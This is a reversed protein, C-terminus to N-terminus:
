RDRLPRRAPGHVPVTITELRQLGFVVATLISATALSVAALLGVAEILQLVFM